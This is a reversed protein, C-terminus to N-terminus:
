PDASYPTFSRRPEDARWASDNPDDLMKQISEQLSKGDQLRWPVPEFQDGVQQVLQIGYKTGFFREVIPRKQVKAKYEHLDIALGSLSWCERPYDNFFPALACKLDVTLWNLVLLHSNGEKQFSNLTEDHMEELNGSIVMRGTARINGQNMRDYETVLLRLHRIDGSPSQKGEFDTVFNFNTKAWDLLPERILYEDRWSPKVWRLGKADPQCRVLDIRIKQRSWPHKIEIQYWFGNQQLQVSEDSCHDRFKLSEKVADRISGIASSARQVLKTDSNFEKPQTNPAHQWSQSVNIFWLGEVSAPRLLETESLGTLEILNSIENKNQVLQVSEIRTAIDHALYHIADNRNIPSSGSLNHTNDIVHQVAQELVANNGHELADRISHEIAKLYDAADPYDIGQQLQEVEIKLHTAIKQATKRSTNGTREINQFTVEHIGIAESFQRQTLYQHERLNRLLNADIKFAPRAM